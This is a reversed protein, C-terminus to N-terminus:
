MGIRGCEWMVEVFMVCVHVSVNYIDGKCLIFATCTHAFYYTQYTIDLM